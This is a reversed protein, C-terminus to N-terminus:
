LCSSHVEPVYYSMSEDYSQCHSPKNPTIIEDFARSKSINLLHLLLYASGFSQISVILEAVYWALIPM